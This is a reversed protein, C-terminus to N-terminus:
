HTFFTINLFSCEHESAGSGSKFFLIRWSHSCFESWFLLQRSRIVKMSEYEFLWKTCKRLNKERMCYIKVKVHKEPLFNINYTVMVGPALFFFANEFDSNSLMSWFLMLFDLNWSVPDAMASRVFYIAIIAFFHNIQLRLFRLKKTIIELKYLSIM